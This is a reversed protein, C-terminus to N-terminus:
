LSTLSDPPAGTPSPAEPNDGLDKSFVPRIWDSDGQVSLKDSSSIGGAYPIQHALGRARFTAALGRFFDVNYEIGLQSVQKWKVGGSRAVLTDCLMAAAMYINHEQTLMWEIEEDQFFPRTSTRDQILFRVQDKELSLDSNYSWAM